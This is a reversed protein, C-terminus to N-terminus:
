AVARELRDILRGRADALADRRGRLLYQDVFYGTLRLAAMVDPLEAEGGCVLFAPLPLLRHELGVAATRSVAGGSKPSVFALDDRSGSAVCEDLALGFGLEALLLLEFRAVAGAWGRAAPSASIADLLGTLGSYLSPFPLSESLTAATLATIWEIGAAPLPEELLPARSKILEAAAGALQSEGRARIEAAVLNGSMLIPRMSRSRGGRIYGSILGHDQTLFRVIAGHEGHARVACIVAEAKILAM